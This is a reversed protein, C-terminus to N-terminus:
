EKGPKKEVIHVLWISLVYLGAMPTAMAVMSFIDNSPTFVAAAIFTGVVGYRWNDSLMKSNIIGVQGLLMLFVPLEFSLGFALLMLISFKMTAPVSPRLEAHPPIYSAFWKFGYPMIWYALAVGFAFLLISLPAIWRLPRKENSKLGPAIFKWAEITVFPLTIILGAILCVQMKLMFPETINTFLFKTNNLRLIPNM